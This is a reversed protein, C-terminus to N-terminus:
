LRPWRAWPRRSRLFYHTTRPIGFIQRSASRRKTHARTTFNANMEPVGDRAPRRCCNTSVDGMVKQVKSVMELNMCMKEDPRDPNIAGRGRWTARRIDDPFDVAAEDALRNTPVAIVVSRKDGAARIHRIFSAIEDRNISSKGTGLTVRIAHHMRLGKFFDQNARVLAKDRTENATFRLPIAAPAPSRLAKKVAAVGDAKLLDNFDSKDYRREPRPFAERFNVGAKAWRVKGKLYSADVPSSQPDDNRAIVIKRGHPPYLSTIVRCPTFTELGAAWISLADEPGEAIVLEGNSWGPRRVYAGAM